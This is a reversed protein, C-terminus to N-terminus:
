EGLAGPAFESEKTFGALQENFVSRFPVRKKKKKAAPIFGSNGSILAPKITLRAGLGRRHKSYRLFLTTGPYEHSM